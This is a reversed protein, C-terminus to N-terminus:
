LKWFRGDCTRYLYLPSSGWSHLQHRQYPEGCHKCIAMPAAREFSPCTEETGGLHIPIAEPRM